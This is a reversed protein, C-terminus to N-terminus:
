TTNVKYFPKDRFSETEPNEVVNHHPVGADRLRQFIQYHGDAGSSGEGQDIILKMARRASELSNISIMQRHSGDGPRFQRALPARQFLGDGNTRHLRILGLIIAFVAQTLHRDNILTGLLLVSVGRLRTM